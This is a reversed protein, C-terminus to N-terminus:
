TDLWFTLKYVHSMCLKGLLEPHFIKLGDLGLEDDGLLQHKRNYSPVQLQPCPPVPIMTGM